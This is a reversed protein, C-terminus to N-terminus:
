GPNLLRRWRERWNRVRRKWQTQFRVLVRDSAPASGGPRVMIETECEPCWYHVGDAADVRHWDGDRQSRYRCEPCFLTSKSVADPEATEQKTM